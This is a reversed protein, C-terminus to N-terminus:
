SERTFPNFVFTQREHRKDNVRVAEADIPGIILTYMKNHSPSALAM